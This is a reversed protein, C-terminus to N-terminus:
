FGAQFGLSFTRAMPYPAGGGKVAVNLLEPDGIPYKTIIFANQLDFYVRLSKFYKTPTFKYGLTINRMRLFDTSTIGIDSPALLGLAAENYSVGPLTGGPNSTSWANKTQQVGASGTLINAPTQWATNTNYAKGGVQGYLFVLLDWNKYHFTNGFGILLSPDVNYEKIDGSDLKNNGNADVFIPSGPLSETAPQSTPPKQGIQIIGNTPYAYIANVPDNVKAGPPIFANPFRTQWTYSVHSLNIISSWQFDRSQVNITNVSVEYGQRVQHGGNTPATTIISLPATIAATNLIRTLDDRFWDLSGSIRNKYFSFDLGIDSNVTKPWQLGPQDLATQYYAVYSTAGNDFSIKTGDPSFTGYAIAAPTPLTGTIGYSARLKLLNISTANKLFGENSIKWAASIAPFGAYKNDPFFNNYGDYRYSFSLIYKDVYSFSARGYYSRTQSYDQYSYVGFSSQDGSSLNATGIADKMGSAQSTFGYDNYIYRGVGGVASFNLKEHFFDQNYTVNAEITQFQRSAQTYSGRSLLEQFYFVDSPIYFNRTAKEGNNGYLVKATLVKPIITFDLSLNAMLSSYYTNDKVTLLSVPNGTTYNQPIYYAGLSDRVPYITPYQLAAQISGFGQTGSGGTQWGANSNAYNDQAANLGANITLFDAVKASINMKGTYKQLGSNKVTGIQNFYNGSMYYTVRDTGGNMSLNYNDIRGSQLVQDLWNTGAGANQIQQTSYKPVFGGAPNPGFPAMQNAILYQDQSLQNYYTMYDTPDLPKFYPMNQVYSESGNFNISLRGAAGKKTTILIVGNAANVGYISASADKLIEISEIDQPNLGGFGGRHVGNMEGGIPNNPVGNGPELGQYPMVVGDVVILPDPRGRVSLVINGGPEASQQTAQVGAARGFFLQAVSSNAAQPVNKPNITSIATTLNKRSTTGYGLVVVDNLSNSVIHMTVYMSNEKGVRVEQSEFGVYSFVLTATSPVSAIRFVGNSDTVTNAGTEGKVMISVGALPQANADLVKGNVSKSQAKAFLSFSTILIFTLFLIQSMRSLRWFDTAKVKMIALKTTLGTVAIKFFYKNPL